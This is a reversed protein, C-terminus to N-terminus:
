RRGYYWIQCADRHHLNRGWTRVTNWLLRLYERNTCLHAKRGSTQLRPRSIIRVQRGNLRAWRKLRRSFEIEESVFLTEDFGGLERYVSSECFIFSSAIWRTSYSLVNWFQAMLRPFLSLGALAVLAGGGVVKKIEIMERGIQFPPITSSQLSPTNFNCLIAHIPVIPLPLITLRM